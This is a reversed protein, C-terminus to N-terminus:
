GAKKLIDRLYCVAVVTNYVPMVSGILMPILRKQPGPPLAAYAEWCAAASVAWLLTLLEIVAEKRDRAAALLRRLDVERADDPHWRRITERERM